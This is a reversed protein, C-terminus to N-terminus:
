GYFRAVEILTTIVDEEPLICHWWVYVPMGEATDGYFIIDHLFMKIEALSPKRNVISECNGKGTTSFSMVMVPKMLYLPSWFAKSTTKKNKIERIGDQHEIMYAIAESSLLGVIHGNPTLAFSFKTILERRSAFLQIGLIHEWTLTVPHTQGQLWISPVFNAGPLTFYDLPSGDSRKIKFGTQYLFQSHYGHASFLAVVCVFM